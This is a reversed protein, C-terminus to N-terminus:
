KCDYMYKGLLLSKLVAALYTCVYLLLYDLQWADTSYHIVSAEQSKNNFLHVAIPFRDTKRSKTVLLRLKRNTKWKIM